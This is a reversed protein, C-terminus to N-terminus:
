KSFPQQTNWEASRAKVCMDWDEGRSQCTSVMILGMKGPRGQYSLCYLIQRCHQLRLNLRQTPFIGQLLSHCDM